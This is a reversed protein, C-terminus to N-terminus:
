VWLLLGPSVPARQQRARRLITARRLQTFAARKRLLDNYLFLTRKKERQPWPSLVSSSSMGRPPASPSSPAPRHTRVGPHLPQPPCVKPFYFAAIVRRLRYGFAQLLCLCVLLGSPLAAKLYARTSLPVPQPLCAPPPPPGTLPIARAPQGCSQVSNGVNM